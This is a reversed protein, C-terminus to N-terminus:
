QPKSTVLLCELNFKSISMNQKSNQVITMRQQFSYNVQIISHGPIPKNDSVFFTIIFWSLNNSPLLFRPDPSTDPKKYICIIENVKDLADM